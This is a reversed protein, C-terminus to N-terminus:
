LFGVVAAYVRAISDLHQEEGRAKLIQVIELCKEVGDISAEEV